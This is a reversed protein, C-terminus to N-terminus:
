KFFISQDVKAALSFKINASNAVGKFTRAVSATNTTRLAYTHGYLVPIVVSVDNNGSVYSQTTTVVTISESIDVITLTSGSVAGSSNIQCNLTVTGDYGTNTFTVLNTSTSGNGVSASTREINNLDCTKGTGVIYVQEAVKGMTANLTSLRSNTTDIKGNTTGLTTNITAVSSKVNDMATKVNDTATKMGDVGSKVNDLLGALRDSMANIVGGLAGSLNNVIAATAEELLPGLYIKSDAM